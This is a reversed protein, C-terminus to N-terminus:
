SLSYIHFIMRKVIENSLNLSKKIFSDNKM